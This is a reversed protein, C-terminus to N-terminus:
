YICLTIFVNTAMSCQVGEAELRHLEATPIATPDHAAHQLARRIEAARYLLRMYVTKRDRDM